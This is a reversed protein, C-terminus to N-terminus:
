VKHGGKMVQLVVRRAFPILDIPSAVMEGTAAGNRVSEPLLGSNRYAGEAWVGGIYALATVIGNDNMRKMYDDARRSGWGGDTIFLAIKHTRRSAHFLRLAEHM